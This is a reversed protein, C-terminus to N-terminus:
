ARTQTLRYIREYVQQSWELLESWHKMDPHNENICRCKFAALRIATIARHQAMVFQRAHLHDAAASMCLWFKESQTM